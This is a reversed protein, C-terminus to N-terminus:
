MMGQLKKLFSNFVSDGKIAKFTSIAKEYEKKNKATIIAMYLPENGYEKKLTKEIGKFKDAIASDSILYKEYDKM